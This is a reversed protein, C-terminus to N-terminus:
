EKTDNGFGVFFKLSLFGLQIRKVAIKAFNTNKSLNENPFVVKAAVSVENAFKKTGSDREFYELFEM